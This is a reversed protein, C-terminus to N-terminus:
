RGMPLLLMGTTKLQHRGTMALRMVRLSNVAILGSLIVLKKRM